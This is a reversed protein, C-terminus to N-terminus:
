AERVFVVLIRDAELTTSSQYAWGMRARENLLDTLMEEDERTRTQLRVIVVQYEKMSGEAATEFGIRRVL